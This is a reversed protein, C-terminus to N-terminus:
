NQEIFFIVVIKKYIPLIAIFLELRRYIQQNDENRISVSKLLHTIPKHKGAFLESKMSIWDM